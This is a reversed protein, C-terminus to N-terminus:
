RRAGQRRRKGRQTRWTVVGSRKERETAAFDVQEESVDGREVLARADPEIIRVERRGHLKITRKMTAVEADLVQKPTTRAGIAIDPWNGGLLSVLALELESLLRVRFPRGKARPVEDGTEPGGFPASNWREDFFRVMLARDSLGRAGPAKRRELVRVFRPLTKRIQALAAWQENWAVGFHERFKAECLRRLGAAIAARRAARAKRRLTRISAKARQADIRAIRADELDILAREREHERLTAIARPGPRVPELDPKGITPARTPKKAATVVQVRPKWHPEGTEDM